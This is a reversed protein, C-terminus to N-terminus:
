PHQRSHVGEDNACMRVDWAVQPTQAFHKAVSFFIALAVQQHLHVGGVAARGGQVFAREAGGPNVLLITFPHEAHAFIRGVDRPRDVDMETVDPDRIHPRDSDASAAAEREVNGVQDRAHQLLINHQELGRIVEM